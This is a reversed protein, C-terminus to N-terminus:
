ATKLRLHSLASKHTALDAHIEKVLTAVADLADSLRRKKDTKVLMGAIAHLDQEKTQHVEEVRRRKGGDSDAFM